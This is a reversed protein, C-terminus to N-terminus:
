RSMFMKIEVDVDGRDRMMYSVGLLAYGDGDRRIRFGLATLFVRRILERHRSRQRGGFQNFVPKVLGGDDGKNEEAVM